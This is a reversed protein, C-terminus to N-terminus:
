LKLEALIRKALMQYQWPNGSLRRFQLGNIGLLLPVKVVFVEFFVEIDPDSSSSNEAGSGSETTRRSSEATSERNREIGVRGIGTAVLSSDRSESSIATTGMDAVGEETPTSTVSQQNETDAARSSLGTSSKSSPDVSPKYVCEFGGRIERHPIGMEELVRILDRRIIQRSRRSTTHVSFLGKLFVPKSMAEDPSLPMEKNSAVSTGAPSLKGAERANPRGNNTSSGVDLPVPARAQTPSRMRMSGFRRSISPETPSTPQTHAALSVNASTANGAMRGGATGGEDAITSLSPLARHTNGFGVPSQLMTQRDLSGGSSFSRGAGSVTSSRQLGMRRNLSENAPPSPLHKNQWSPSDLSPFQSLLSSELEDAHARSRPPGLMLGQPQSKQRSEFVPISEADKGLGSSASGVARPLPAPVSIPTPLNTARHSAHSQEPIKVSEHPIDAPTPMSQVLTKPPDNQREHSSSSTSPTGVAADFLASKVTAGTELAIDSSAFSMQGYIQERQMKEQVLYYISLLPHYGLTPDLATKIGPPQDAKPEEDERSRLSLRRRYFNIGSFSRSLRNRGSDPSNRDDETNRREQLPSQTGGKQEWNSLATQYGESTLVEILRAEIEAATGFEFGTMGEIVKKDISGPRLPTRAALHVPEPLDYGKMMWPHAMVEQLTARQHPNTVLMRSLLQKCETSLWVPYEVQGRKIKAHLAPMNQDDFPVKGCVLVYLVVGFSWVDVEPGTYVRANLLEPAAFYLSGCFTNLHSHPSYLNSLGFDIIKINGSKSILINEIKLDRHVVNNAHCYQLASGIQRAFGRASRERLRGHSIIYDLMQGGNIYEFIMYYHNQHVIMERMGCIHPHRLLLQLSGERVIRVEKSKDKASARQIALSLEYDSNENSSGAFRKAKERAQHQVANVSTHRPIIKVAVKEGTVKHCGYKVKGMSGAGITKGLMYDGLSWRFREERPPTSVGSDLKSLNASRQSLVSAHRTLERTANDKVLDKNSPVASTVRSQKPMTNSRAVSAPSMARRTHMDHSAGTHSVFPATPLDQVAIGMLDPDVLGADQTPPPASAPSAVPRLPSAPRPHVDLMSATLSPLPSRSQPSNQPPLLADNPSKGEVGQLTPALYGLDLELPSAPIASTAFSGTHAAAHPYDLHNSEAAEAPITQLSPRRSSGVGYAQSSEVDHLADLADSSLPVTLAPAKSPSDTVSNPLTQQSLSHDEGPIAPLTHSM